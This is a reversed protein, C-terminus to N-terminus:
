GEVLFHMGEFILTLGHVSPLTLTRKGPHRISEGMDARLAQEHTLIIMGDERIRWGRDLVFDREYPDLHLM